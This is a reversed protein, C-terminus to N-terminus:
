SSRRPPDPIASRTSDRRWETTAVGSIGASAGTAWGTARPSGALVPVHRGAIEKYGTVYGPLRGPLKAYGPLTEKPEKRIPTLKM